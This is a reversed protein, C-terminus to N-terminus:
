LVMSYVLLVTTGLQSSTRLLLLSAASSEEGDDVLDADDTISETETEIEPELSPPESSNANGGGGGNTDNTSSLCSGDEVISDLNDLALFLLQFAEVSAAFLAQPTEFGTTMVTMVTETNPDVFVLQGGAGIAAFSGDVDNTYWQYGYGPFIAAVDGPVQGPELQNTTSATVWESSLLSSPSATSADLTGGMTMTMGQQLYLQGLKALTRPNTNLGYASGEIGGFTDWVFDVGDKLGLGRSLLDAAVGRLTQETGEASAYEIIRALIHNTALYEFTGRNTADFTTANLVDVATDQQQPAVFSGDDVFVDGTTETLGSSMTLIEHVTLTRKDISDVINDSGNGNDSDTDGRWVSPPFIDGLTTSTLNIRGSDVLLGIIMSTWSKTVSFAPYLMDAPGTTTTTTTADDNDRYGEAVVKGQQLVVYGAIFSDSEDDGNENEDDKLLMMRSNLVCYLENRNYSESTTFPESLNIIVTAVEEAAAAEVPCFAPGAVLVLFLALVLVLVARLRFLMLLKQQFLLPLLMTPTRHFRM